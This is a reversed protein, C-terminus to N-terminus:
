TSRKRAFGSHGFLGPDFGQDVSHNSPTPIDWRRQRSLDVFRRHRWECCRLGHARRQQLRRCSSFECNSWRSYRQATPYRSFRQVSIRSASFPTYAGRSYPIPVPKISCCGSEASVQRANTQQSRGSSKSAEIALAAGHSSQLTGGFRAPRAPIAAGLWRHLDLFGFPFLWINALGEIPRAKIFGGYLVLFVRAMLTNRETRFTLSRSWPTMPYSFRPIQTLHASPCRM